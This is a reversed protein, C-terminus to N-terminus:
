HDLPVKRLAPSLEKGGYTIWWAERPGEVSLLIGGAEVNSGGETINQVPIIFFVGFRMVDVNSKGFSEGAVDMGGQGEILQQGKM